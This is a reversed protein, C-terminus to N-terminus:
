SFIYLMARYWRLLAIFHREPTTVGLGMTRTCSCVRNSGTVKSVAVAFKSKHVRFITCEHTGQLRINLACLADKHKLTNEKDESHSQEMGAKCQSRGPKVANVCLEVNMWWNVTNGKSVTSVTLKKQLHQPEYIHGWNAGHWSQMSVQRPQVANVCLMSGYTLVCSLM